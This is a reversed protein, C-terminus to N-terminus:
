ASALARAGLASATATMSSKMFGSRAILSPPRAPLRVAADGAPRAQHPAPPPTATGLQAHLVMSPHAARAAHTERRPVSRLRGLAPRSVRISSATVGSACSGSLPKKLRNFMAMEEQRPLTTGAHKRSVMLEHALTTDFLRPRLPPPGLCRTGTLRHDHSHMGPLDRRDIGPNGCLILVEAAGLRDPPQDLHGQAARLLPALCFQAAQGVSQGRPGIDASPPHPLPLLQLPLLQPKHHTERQISGTDVRSNLSALDDNVWQYRVSSFLGGSCTRPSMSWRTLTPVSPRQM